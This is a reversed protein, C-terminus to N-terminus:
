RKVCKLTIFERINPDLLGVISGFFIRYIDIATTVLSFKKNRCTPASSQRYVNTYQRFNWAMQQVDFGHSELMKTLSIVSFIVLHRPPELGRWNRKFQQHGLSLINPTELWFTGGTRIKTSILRLFENPDHVHEIVHSCTIVDYLKTEASIIDVSGVRVNLGDHLCVAVAFEDPDIGEANWGLQEAMHMFKGDGCGIDLLQDNGKSARPLHRNSNRISSNIVPVFFLLSKLLQRISQRTFKKHRGYNIGVDNLATFNHRLDISKFASNGHTYYNKYAIHISEKSPRPNLFASDCTNCSQLNWPGSPSGFLHDVLGQHLIAYDLGGCVPCMGLHEIGNSPWKSLVNEARLSIKM